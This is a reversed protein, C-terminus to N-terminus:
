HLVIYPDCDLIEIGVKRNEHISKVAALVMAISHINDHCDTLIPRGESLSNLMDELALAHQDKPSEPAPITLDHYIYTGVKDTYQAKAEGFGDWVVSGRECCIRWVHDWSTHMGEAGNYGRFTFVSGNDMEYVAVGAADGTYKSGRPNFSYYMVSVPNAHSMFRAQDFMHINNDQLQPFELQNRISGMDAAVFIDGCTMVSPGMIGSDILRRIDQVQAIYRRNQMVAYTRGTEDVAKMIDRVAQVSDAMPKEGLVDYGARLAATVIDRHATVYTLDAVLNARVKGMAEELTSFVPCDLGYKVKAAEAVAPNKEVIAAVRTDERTTLYDLWRRSIAGCGAMIIDFNM